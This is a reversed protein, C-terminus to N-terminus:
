LGCKLFLSIQFFFSTHFFFFRYVSKYLGPSQFHQPGPSPLHQHRRSGMRFGPFAEQLQAWTLGQLERLSPSFVASCGWFCGAARAEVFPTGNLPQGQCSTGLLTVFHSVPGKRVLHSHEGPTSGSVSSSPLSPKRSASVTGLHHAPVCSGLEGKRDPAEWTLQGQKCFTRPAGVQRSAGIDM